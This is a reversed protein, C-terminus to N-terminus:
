AALWTQSVVSLQRAHRERAHHVVGLGVQQEVLQAVLSRALDPEASRGQVDAAGFAYGPTPAYAHACLTRPRGANEGPCCRAGRSFQQSM